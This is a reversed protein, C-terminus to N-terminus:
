QENNEITIEISKEGKGPHFYGGTTRITAHDVYKQIRRLKVGQQGALTIFTHRLSHLHLSKPLDADDMWRRVWKSFVEPRCVMLPHDGPAGHKLFWAFIEVTPAPMQIIRKPQARRKVNISRIIRKPIDIDTRHLLLIETRRLGTLLSLRLLRRGAENGSADAVKLLEAIQEQTLAKPRQEVDQLRRPRLFPNAPIIEDDM